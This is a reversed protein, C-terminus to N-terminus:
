LRSSENNLVEKMQETISYEFIERIYENWDKIQSKVVELDCMQYSSADIDLIYSEKVRDNPMEGNFLGYQIKLLCEEKKLNAVSMHQLVNNGGWDECFLMSEKIYKKWEISSFDNNEFINIYRLGTRGVVINSSKIMLNLVHEIDKYLPDFNNYVKYNIVLTKSSIEMKSTRNSNFFIQNTQEIEEREVTGGKKDDLNVKINNKKLKLPSYLPYLKKLESLNDKVFDNVNIPNVFDIRFIVDKLFNRKYIKKSM